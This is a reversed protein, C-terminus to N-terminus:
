KAYAKELLPAWFETSNTPHTFVLHGKYTPLRDDVLIEKWEGFHWFRFRFCWVRTNIQYFSCRIRIQLSSECVDRQM